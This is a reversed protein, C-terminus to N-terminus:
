KDKSNLIHYKRPNQKSIKKDFFDVFAEYTAFVIFKNGNLEDRIVVFESKFKDWEDDADVNFWTKLEEV